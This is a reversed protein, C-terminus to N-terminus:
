AAGGSVATRDVKIERGSYPHYISHQHNMRAFALANALGTITQTIDLYYQGKHHWFGVYHNPIRLWYHNRKLWQYVKDYGPIEDFQQEHGQKSVYYIDPFLHKEFFPSEATEPDLTFGSPNLPIVIDAIHAALRSPTETRVAEKLTTM